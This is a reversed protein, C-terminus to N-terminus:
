SSEYYKDDEKEVEDLLLQDDLLNLKQHEKYKDLYVKIISCYHDFGLSSLANIIDEGNITKRKENLCNECAESTIFSIFETLCEQFTEKAEKSLKVDKNLNSKIIRVINANPLFRDFEDFPAKKHLPKSDSHM